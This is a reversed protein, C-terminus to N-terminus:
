VPLHVVFLAVYGSQVKPDWDGLLNRSECEAVSAASAAEWGRSFWLDVAASICGEPAGVALDGVLGDEDFGGIALSAGFRDYLTRM